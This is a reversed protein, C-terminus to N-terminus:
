GKTPKPAEMAEKQDVFGLAGRFAQYYGAVRQTDKSYDADKQYARYLVYDLLVTMYTDDLTIVNGIAAIEAPTSSYAVEVFGMSSGPQPPTVYFVKPNRIDFMYHKVTANSTDAHWDPNVTDMIRMDILTVARGATAGDTGMNRQVDILLVGAELTASASNQFSSTGDPISQKTGAVLQYEDTTVNTDPKLMVIERQGDNLWGLLEAVTWRVNTTDLLILEAKDIIASALITGM